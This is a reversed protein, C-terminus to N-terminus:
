IVIVSTPGHTARWSAMFATADERWRKVKEPVPEFQASFGDLNVSQAIERECSDLVITAAWRAMHGRLERLIDETTPDAYGCTYDIEVFNPIVSWPWNQDLLPAFWIGFESSTLAPVGVPVLSVVGMLKNLRVWENPITLVKYTDSFGLQVREVSLVPRRRMVWSPLTQKDVTGALYDFPDEEIDYDTGMVLGPRPRMKVVSTEFSQELRRLMQADAEGIAEEYLATLKDADVGALLPLYSLIQGEVTERTIPAAM